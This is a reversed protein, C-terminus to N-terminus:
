LSDGPHLLLLHHLRQKHGAHQLLAWRSGHLHERLIGDPDSGGCLLRLKDPDAVEQGSSRRVADAGLLRHVRRLVDCRDRHRFQAQRHSM